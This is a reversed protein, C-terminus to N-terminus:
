GKVCLFQKITHNVRVLTRANDMVERIPKYSGPLEDLIGADKRCEVGQTQAEADELSFTKKAKKRSMVRGAGHPASKISEKNSLGTVIFSEAGMSGPIIGQEGIGASIAGKRTVYLRKGWHVEEAAYNHHCHVSHEVTFNFHDLLVETIRSAMIRRNLMAYTQAFNLDYLYADFEPTGEKLYSLSKDPLDADDCIAKAARIHHTAIKNGLGRSGSHVVIWVKGEEDESLEIFHNGAGLTGCQAMATDLYGQPLDAHVKQYADDVWDQHPLFEYAPGSQYQCGVGVPVTREIRERLETLSICAFHTPTLSTRIALMGCGIDVGTASPILASRTPIVSGICAGMGAHVDPMIAVWPWVVKLNSVNRIQGQATEEIDDWPVWTKIPVHKDRDLTEM